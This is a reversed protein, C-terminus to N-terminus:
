KLSPTFFASKPSIPSDCVIGTFSKNNSVASFKTCMSLNEPFDSTNVKGLHEVNELKAGKGLLDRTLGEKTHDASPHVAAIALVGIFTLGAFFKGSGKFDNLIQEDTM